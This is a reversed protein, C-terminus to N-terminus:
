IINLFGLAEAFSRVEQIEDMTPLGSIEPHESANYLPRYQSMINLVVKSGLNDSIWKIIPKSCCEVHNPIVLHRIIMDGAKYAIKHNRKVVETYDSIGSLDEACRNNGYKFDTLYVDAFGDLLKMALDSLYLNSNFVVPINEMSNKMVKMIYPINPTPEGGVFNVNMSGQKRRLDVIKALKTPELVMGHDSQQSIDWNQCYVCQFNCGLFFITHSPILPKEEGMHLFESAIAPKSVRCFGTKSRRDIKCNKECLFCNEFIKDAIIIKLDLYSFDPSLLGNWSTEIFKSNYEARLKDHENLLDDLEVCFEAPINRAVRSRSPKQNTAINFYDELAMGISRDLRSTMDRSFM